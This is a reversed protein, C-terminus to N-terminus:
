TCGDQLAIPLSNSVITGVQCGKTHKQRIKRDTSPRFQSILFLYGDVTPPTFVSKMLCM